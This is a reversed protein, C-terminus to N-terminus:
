VIKAFCTTNGLFVHSKCNPNSNLLLHKQNFSNIAYLSSPYPLPQPLCRCHISPAYQFDSGSPLYTHPRSSHVCISPQPSYAHVTHLNPNQSLTPTHLQLHLIFTILHTIITLIPSTYGSYNYMYLETFMNNRACNEFNRSFGIYLDM